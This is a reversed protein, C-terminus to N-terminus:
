SRTCSVKHGTTAAYVSIATPHLGSPLSFSGAGSTASYPPIFYSDVTNPAATGTLSIWIGETKATDIDMIIVQQVNTAGTFLNQATGGTTVTVSCSTGAGGSPANEVYIAGNLNGNIGQITGTTYSNTVRSTAALYTSATTLLPDDSATVTRITGTGTAGTGLNIANGGLQTINQTWPGSTQSVAGSIVWPSTGQNVTGIVKTTEANLTATVAGSIPQATGGAVGQVSVVGGSPTGATGAGVVTANLLSATPQTVVGGGGGSSSGGGAGSPLGSGGTIVLSSSSSSTIAALFTNSGVSYSFWSGPQVIDGTVATVTTGAGVGLKTTIPVTGTNFVAVVSGAPLAVSSSTTTVSALNAATGGPQYTGVSVSALTRINGSLDSSFPQTSGETYTPAAATAKVTSTANITGTIPLPSTSSVSECSPIGQTSTKGNLFCPNRSTQAEAMHPCILLLGLILIKKM